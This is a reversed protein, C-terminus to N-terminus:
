GDIALALAAAALLACASVILSMQVRPLAGVVAVGVAGGAQRATNNVASAIGAREAAIAGTAAVVLAPTAAALGVAVTVLGPWVSGYGSAGHLPSIALLAVGTAALGVAAPLRPGVRAVLRGGLAALAAFPAFLPVLRVGSALPDLGQTRQFFLSLAFLLGLMGFNMLASAANAAAFTHSRFDRPNLMPHTGRGEFVMFASASVGLTVLAVVIVPSSWGLRGAEILTFVLAALCMTGLIQGVLDLRRRPGTSEPVFAVTAAFAVACLPLNLWFVSRWGFSQVLAGGLVPGGALAIGAVGAWVGIARARAGPEPYAHNVIALSTPLLAAAGMGQLARAAILVAAGPALACALSGAAFLALGAIFLRRRGHRDAGDGASLMLSALALAYADVVWQLAATSGGVTSAIPRLAVNVVTLDLQVFFLGFCATALVLRPKM